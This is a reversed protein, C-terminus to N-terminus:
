TFRPIHKYNTMIRDIICSQIADYSQIVTFLSWARQYLCYCKQSTNPLQRLCPQGWQHKKTSERLWISPYHRLNPWPLNMGHGKWNMISQWGILQHQTSQTASLKLLYIVSSYIFLSNNLTSYQCKGSPFWSFSILITLTRSKLKTDGTYLDSGSSNVQNTSCHVHTFILIIRLSVPYTSTTGKARSLTWHCSKTFVTVFRRTGYFNPSLWQWSRLFFGTEHLQNTIAEGHQGYKNLRSECMDLFELQMLVTSTGQDNGISSHLCSNRASKCLLTPM